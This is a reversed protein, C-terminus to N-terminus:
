NTVIVPGAIGLLRTNNKGKAVTACDGSRYDCVAVKQIGSAAQATQMDGLYMKGTILMLNIAIIGLLINKMTTRRDLYIGKPYWEYIATLTLYLWTSASLNIIQHRTNNLNYITSEDLRSM